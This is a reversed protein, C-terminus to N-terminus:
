AVAVAVATVAPHRASTHQGADSRGLTMLAALLCNRVMGQSTPSRWVFVLRTTGKLLLLCSSAPIGEATLSASWESAQEAAAKVDRDVGTGTHYLNGLNYQAEAVGLASARQFLSAAKVADSSVGLGELYMVGLNFLSQKHEEAAAQEFMGRAKELDKKAGLQGKLYASGLLFKSHVDGEEAKKVLADLSLQPRVVGATKSALSRAHPSSLRTRSTLESSNCHSCAADRAAMNTRWTETLSRGVLLLLPQRRGVLAM